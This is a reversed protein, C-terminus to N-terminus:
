HLNMVEDLDAQAVIEGATQVPQDIHNIAVGPTPKFVMEFGRDFAKNTYVKYGTGSYLVWDGVFAKTQRPSLPRLVRVQIYDEPDRKETAETTLVEGQCWEAVDQMNEATVQVADVTFPKRIFKETKM